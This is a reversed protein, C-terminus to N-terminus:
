VDALFSLGASRDSSGKRDLPKAMTINGTRKLCRNSRTDRIPYDHPCCHCPDSCCVASDLECCKWLLCVGIPSLACCCTEGQSCSTYFDCRTPGSLDVSWLSSM